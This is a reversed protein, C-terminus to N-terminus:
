KMCSMETQKGLDQRMYVYYVHKLMIIPMQYALSKKGTIFIGVINYGQLAEDRNSYIYTTANWKRNNVMIKFMNQIRCVVWHVFHVGMYLLINSM